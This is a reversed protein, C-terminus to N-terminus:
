TRLRLDARSEVANRAFTEEELAAWDSWHALVAAGDRVVARQARLEAEAEVWVLLTTYSGFLRAGAGCGELVLVDVAHLDRWSGFCGAAWDYAQWRASRGLRLPELVQERVRLELAADLGDWGDYLDDLSLVEVSSDRGTLLSAIQVALSSKGSAAPGDIALLRTSGM